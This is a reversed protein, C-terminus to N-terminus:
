NKEAGRHFGTKARLKTDDRLMESDTSDRLEGCDKATRRVRRGSLHCDERPLHPEGTWM